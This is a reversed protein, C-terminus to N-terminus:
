KERFTMFDTEVWSTKDQPPQSKDPILVEHSAM